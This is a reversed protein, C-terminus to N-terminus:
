KRSKSTHTPWANNKNNPVVSMQNIHSKLIKVTKNKPSQFHISFDDQHVITGLYENTHTTILYETPDTSTSVKEGPSFIKSISKIIRKIISM